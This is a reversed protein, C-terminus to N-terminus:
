LADGEIVYISFNSPSDVILIRNGNCDWSSIKTGSIKIEGLDSLEKGTTETVPFNKNFASYIKKAQKQSIRNRNKSSIFIKKVSDNYVVSFRTNRIIKDPGDDDFNYEFEYGHKRLINVYDNRGCDDLLNIKALSVTEKEVSSCSILLTSILILFAILKFTNKM